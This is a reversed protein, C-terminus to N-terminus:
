WGCWIFWSVLSMLGLWGIIWVNSIWDNICSWNYSIILLYYDFAKNCIRNTKIIKKDEGTVSCRWLLDPLLSINEPAPFLTVWYISKNRAVCTKYPLKNLNSGQVTTVLLAKFKGPLCTLTIKHQYHDFYTNLGILQFFAIIQLIYYVKTTYRVM